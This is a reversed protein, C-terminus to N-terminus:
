EASPERMEVYARGRVEQAWNAYAEDIKKERLQGRAVERLEEPTLPSERRDMLQILHVGFRSVVPPATEGPALTNMADEFEPVFTGPNVWDLDGGKAASGDQSYEKALTAFDAKGAQVDRRFGALKEVAQAESLQPTTRLLIHRARSQTVTKAAKGPSTKEMVKLVHFGASSRVVASVGGISLDKTAEVFLEPYRDAPRLGMVGGATREPADSYEQALAVFDDGQRARELVRRARAELALVQQANATEPVAVLVQALSLLQQSPDIPAKKEDALFQDVEQDTVRVRSEVDRERLRTLTIQQRLGDRFRELTMGDARLRSRFETLDLQNRRAITLEAQDVAADDVKIGTERAMQLQAKEQILRELTDRTLEANTPMGQGQQALRQQLEVVRQRVENNTIPESNVIAVIFDAQQPTSSPTSTPIRQGIRAPNLQNSPRLGQALVPGGVGAGVLGLLGVLGLRVAAPRLSFSRKAAPPTTM